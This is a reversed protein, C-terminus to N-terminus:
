AGAYDQQQKPQKTKNRQYLPFCIFHFETFSYTNGGVSPYSLHTFPSDIILIDQMSDNKNFFCNYQMIELCVYKGVVRRMITKHITISLEKRMM